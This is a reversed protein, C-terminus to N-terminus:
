LRWKHLINTNKILVETVPAYVLLKGTYGGETYSDFFVKTQSDTIIVRFGAEVPMTEMSKAIKKDDFEPIDISAVINARM